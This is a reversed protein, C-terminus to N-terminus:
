HIFALAKGIASDPYRTEIVRFFFGAIVMYAVVILFELASAHVHVTM